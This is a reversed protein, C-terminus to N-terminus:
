WRFILEAAIVVDIVGCWEAFSRAVVKDRRLHVFDWVGHCFWGAAVLYRGLDPDVALGILGLAGFALMGLAQVRFTGSRFVHGDVVSWLLVILALASFVVAPEIVELARLAVVGALGGVLLPWTARRAELKAVVLYLLPLLVLISAFSAVAADSETGGFTAASLALALATPWRDLLRRVRHGRGHSVSAMSVEQHPSPTVPSPDPHAPPGDM